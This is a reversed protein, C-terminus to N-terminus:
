TAVGVRPRRAPMGGVVQKVLEALRSVTDPELDQHCPIELVERRLAEFMSDYAARENPPFSLPM